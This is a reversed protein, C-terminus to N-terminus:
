CKIYRMKFAQLRGEYFQTRWPNHLNVTPLPSSQFAVSAFFSELFQIAAKLYSQLANKPLINFIRRLNLATFVLGVDASAHQLTKKTSIYYFGWQRKIIGYTHEVIAQRRKYLQEQESLRRANEEYYSAYESREIVRQGKQSSTCREAMACSVCNTTKYHKVQVTTKGHAKGYWKGNTFMLQGIPCVYYDKQAQYTFRSVDFVPDPAHSSVAPIAVLVNVGLDAAHKLETGTHYGKDYLGTYSNHGLIAVTRAVMKGLAKSDNENTVLYDLTLYHKADVTTQINYGVETIHNRTILQRSDPDSTSIQVEEGQELQTQMKAYQERRELQTAISQKAAAAKPSEPQDGDERALERNYEEVKKDIYELKEKLKKLNYNNKKSNQARMKTSDGAVLKGGVLDFRKGLEVTARFVRRIAEPNNKRFNAITNHDPELGKLLWRVELNRKCEKELLRSSRIRNLYGYLYLKLLDGPHYAPRGNELQDLKFGFDALPLSDVFAELLRVENDAEIAEELSGVFLPIQNRDKGTLYKM